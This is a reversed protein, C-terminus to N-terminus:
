KEKYKLFQQLSVSIKKFDSDFSLFFAPRMKLFIARCPKKPHLQLSDVGRRCLFVM